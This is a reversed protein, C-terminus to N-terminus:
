YSLVMKRQESGYPTILQYLYIGSNGLQERGITTEQWGAEM